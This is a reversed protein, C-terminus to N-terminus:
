RHRLCELLTKLNPPLHEFQTGETPIADWSAKSGVCLHAGVELPIGGDLLGSPGLRVKHEPPSQPRPVRLSLLFRVPLGIRERLVLYLGRRWALPLERVRHDILLEVNFGIAQSVALLPM